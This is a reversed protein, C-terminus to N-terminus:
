NQTHRTWILCSKCPGCWHGLTWSKNM